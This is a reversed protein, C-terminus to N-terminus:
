HTRLRPEKGIIPRPLLDRAGMIHGIMERGDFGPTDVCKGKVELVLSESLREDPVLPDGSFRYSPLMDLISLRVSFTATNFAPTM